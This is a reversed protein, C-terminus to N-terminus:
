PVITGDFGSIWAGRGQLSIALTVVDDYPYDLDISTIIAEFAHYPNGDASGIPAWHITGVNGAEMGFTELSTGGSDLLEIDATVDRLTPLHYRDLATGASADTTDGTRSIALSRNDSYDSLVVASGGQWFLWLNRGVYRDIEPM